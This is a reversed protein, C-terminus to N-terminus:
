DRKRQKASPIDLLERMQKVPALNINIGSMHIFTKRIEGDKTPNSSDEAAIMKLLLDKLM